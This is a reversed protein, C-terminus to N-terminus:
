RSYMSLTQIDRPGNRRLLAVYRKQIHGIRAIVTVEFMLSRVTLYQMLQAAMPNQAAGGAGGAGAGGGFLGAL